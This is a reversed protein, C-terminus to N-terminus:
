LRADNLSINVIKASYIGSHAIEDTIEFLTQGAESNYAVTYWGTPMGAANVTEFGGNKLLNEGDACAVGFLLLAVIVLFLLKKM